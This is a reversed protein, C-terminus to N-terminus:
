AKASLAAAVDKLEAQLEVQRAALQSLEANIRKRAQLLQSKTRGDVAPLRLRAAFAEVEDDQSDLLELQPASAARGAEEAEERESRAKEKARAKARAKKAAKKSMTRPVAGAGSGASGGGGAGEGGEIFGLLDDLDRQDDQRPMPPLAACRKADELESRKRAYLSNLLRVRSDDLGFEIPALKEEETLDDPLDFTSRIEEPSKGEIERALAKCSLDILPKINLYHAASALECIRATDLDRIYQKNYQKREKIARGPSVHFRCFDFVSHLAVASVKQLFIPAEPDAANFELQVVPSLFALKKEMRVEEGESTQLVVEGELDLEANEFPVLMGDDGEPDAAHEQELAQLSAETLAM